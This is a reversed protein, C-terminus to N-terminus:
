GFYVEHEISLYSWEDNDAKLKPCIDSDFDLSLLGSFELGTQDYIHDILATRSEQNLNTIAGCTHKYTPRNIVIVYILKCM